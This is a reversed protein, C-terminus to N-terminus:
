LDLAKWESSDAPHRLVGDDVHNDKHWRMNSARKRSVYLRKLRSTLSFYRLVKHPIKKGKGNNHKYRPEKCEPCNDLCKNEKGILACDNKCAHILEYSMGLDRLIKKAEYTSRSVLTDKPLLKMLFDLLTDLLKNSWNNMVKVNLITIVFM